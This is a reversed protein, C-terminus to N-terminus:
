LTLDISGCQDAYGFVKFQAGMSDTKTKFGVNDNSWAVGALAPQKPGKM